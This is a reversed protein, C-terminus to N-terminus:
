EPLCYQAESQVDVTFEYGPPCAAMEPWGAYPIPTCSAVDEQTVHLQYNVDCPENNTGYQGGEGGGGNPLCTQGPPCALWTPPCETPEVYLTNNGPIKSPSAHVFTIYAQGFGADGFADLSIWVEYVVAYNWDPTAPNPTYNEDTLPSDVTCDGDSSSDSAGDSSAPACASSQCYGCGNINRDLSSAVGIVHSADGTMMKGDGGTVGLNTFGCGSGSAGGVGPAGGTAEAGPGGKPPKPGDGDEGSIYDEGLEMVTAGTGDTLLLEIHDSGTLDNSFTHGKGEKGDASGYWGASANAGYTNDAFAPDFTVRIHVYSQGNVTEVVQEILAAPDDPTPDDIQGDTGFCFQAPPRIVSVESGSVCTPTCEKATDPDCGTGLPTWNTGLGQFPRGTSGFGSGAGGEGTPATCAGSQCVGSACDSGTECAEGAGKGDNGSDSSGCAALGGWLCM